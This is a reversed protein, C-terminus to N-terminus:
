RVFRMTRGDGTRLVYQGAPIGTVDLRVTQEGERIVRTLLTRGTVDIVSLRGAPEENGPVVQLFDTVPNPYVFLEGPGSRIVREVETHSREGTFDVQAIRYYTTGTLPHEDTFSYNGGSVNDEPADVEGIVAFNRGDSSREVAFFDNNTESATQWDLAVTKEESVAFFSRWEVPLTAGNAESFTVYARESNFDPGCNIVPPDYALSLLAVVDAGERTDAGLQRQTQGNTIRFAMVENPDAVHKLQHTHGLEHLAISEFDSGSGNGPGYNYNVSGGFGNPNGPRRFLVDVGTVEFESSGCANYYSFAVGVTGSGLEVDFDYADSGFAIINVDDDSSPSQISTTGELYISYDGDQQWTSVARRVAALAPANSALSVGGNAASNGVAFRYGGNGDAEDDILLPTVVDGSSLNLNTIAFGVNIRQTSNAQLGAATRIIVRGSGANSVVRVTIHDDQWSLINQSRASTFSGGTGDDPSDFFVSGATNGFGSGTITIIDDIGADVNLPTIAAINPMMSRGSPPAPAWNGEPMEDLRGGTAAQLLANVEPLTGTFGDGDSFTGTEPDFRMVSEHVATPMYIAGNGSVRNGTYLRLMFVGSADEIDRLSPYAVMKEENITGGMTFFRLTDPLVAEQGPLPSVYYELDHMTCIEGFNNYFAESAFVRGTVVLDSENMRDELAQPAYCQAQLGLSTVVLIFFTYFQQM